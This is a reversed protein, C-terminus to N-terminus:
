RINDRLWIGAITAYLSEVDNEFSNLRVLNDGFTLIDNICEDKIILNNYIQESIDRICFGRKLLTDIEVFRENLKPNKMINNTNIPIQVFHKFDLGLELHSQLYFIYKTYSQQYSQVCQNLDMLEYAVNETELIYKGYNLLEVSSPLKTEFIVSHKEVLYMPHHDNLISIVVVSPDTLLVYLFNTFKVSIRSFTELVIYKKRNDNKFNLFEHVIEKSEITKYSTNNMYFVNKSETYEKLFCKIISKKGSGNVGILCINFPANLMALKKLKDILDRNSFFDDLKKPEYKEIWNTM